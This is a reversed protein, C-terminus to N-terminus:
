FQFYIFAVEKVYSFMLILFLLSFYSIYRVVRRKEFFAQVTQREKLVDLIYFVMTLAVLTVFFSKDAVNLGQFLSAGGKYSEWVSPWSFLVSHVAHFAQELNTVRFFIWIISVLVFTILVRVPVMIKLRAFRQMAEGLRVNSLLVFLGHLAGWVVFNWSAGHWLGSLLFVTFVNIYNRAKTVRNGGLPIYVYDRFWTSLSIHWRTWFEKISKSLYPVNFNQMLNYGM